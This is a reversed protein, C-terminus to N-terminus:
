ATDFVLLRNTRGLVEQRGYSQRNLTHQVTLCTKFSKSDEPIFRENPQCIHVYIESYNSGIKTDFLLAFFFAVLVTKSGIGGFRRYVDVLCCPTM